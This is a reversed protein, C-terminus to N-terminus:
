MAREIPTFIADWNALYPTYIGAEIHDREASYLRRIADWRQPAPLTIDIPRVAHRTARLRLAEKLMADSITVPERIVAADDLDDYLETM